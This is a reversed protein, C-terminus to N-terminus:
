IKCFSICGPAESAGTSFPMEALTEGAARSV